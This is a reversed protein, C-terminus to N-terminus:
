EIDVKWFYFRAYLTQQEKKEAQQVVILWIYVCIVDHYFISKTTNMFKCWKLAWTAWVTFYNGVPHIFPAPASVNRKRVVDMAVKQSFISLEKVLSLIASCSVSWETSDLALILLVKMTFLDLM